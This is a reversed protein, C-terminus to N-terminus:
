RRRKYIIVNKDGWVPFPLAITKFIYYNKKFWASQNLSRASFIPMSVVWESNVQKLFPVSIAGIGAGVRQDAPVPLFPHAEPSVLGCADYIAGKFYFGLAGVEPAAITDAPLAEQNLTQAAQEYTLIRWRSSDAKIFISPLQIAKSSYRPKVMLYPMLTTYLLWGMGVSWILWGVLGSFRISSRILRKGALYFGLMLTVMTLVFIPPWYWLFFPPNGLGYAMIFFWFLIIVYGESYKKETPRILTIFSAGILLGWIMEIQWYSPSVSTFATASNIISQSIHALALGKPLSYIPKAKAILSLPVPTGYYQWSFLIWPLLVLSFSLLTQRLERPRNRFQLIVVPLILLGEPRALLSLGCLIGAWIPKNDAMGLLVLLLLTVFLFSEMGGGSISLLFPNLLFSLSGLLALPRSDTIKRLFFYLVLGASGFHVANFRVALDPITWGPFLVKLLILWILYLPTSSGFVRQGENYVLGKGALFNLVYRFTIFGDDYPIVPIKGHVWVVWALTLGIITIGAYKFAQNQRIPNTNKDAILEM